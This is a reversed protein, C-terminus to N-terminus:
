RDDIRGPDAAATRLTWAAALEAAAQDIRGRLHGVGDASGEWGEAGTVVVTPVPEARLRTLCGRLVRGVEPFRRPSRCTAALLVPMGAVVGDELVDFFSELVDSPSAVVVPTAVVLGDAAAAAAIAERLDPSTHGQTSHHALDTALRRLEIVELEVREGRAALSRCVSAAVEDALLRTPCPEGTGASIVVLSGSGFATTVV